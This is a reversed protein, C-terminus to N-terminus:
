GRARASSSIRPCSCCTWSSLAVWPRAASCSSAGTLFALVRQVWYDDALRTSPPTFTPATSTPVLTDYLKPWGRATDREHTAHPIRATPCISLLVVDIRSQIMTSRMTRGFSGEHKVQMIYKVVHTRTWLAVHQTRRQSRHMCACLMAATRKYGCAYM